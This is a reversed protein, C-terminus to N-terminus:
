RWPLWVYVFRADAALFNLAAGGGDETAPHRQGDGDLLDWRDLDRRIADASLATGNAFRFLTAFGDHTWGVIEAGCPLKMQGGNILEQVSRPAIVRNGHAEVDCTLLANYTLLVYRAVAVSRPGDMEEVAEYAVTRARERSKVRAYREAAERTLFFPGGFAFGEVTWVGDYLPLGHATTPANPPPTDM